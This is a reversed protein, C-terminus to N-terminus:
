RKGTKHYRGEYLAEYRDSNREKFFPARIGVILVGKNQKM